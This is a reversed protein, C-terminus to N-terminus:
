RECVLAAPREIRYLVHMSLHPHTGPVQPHAFDRGTMRQMGIREMVAISRRNERVAFAYIEKLGFNQFAYDLAATAAETVYGQSWFRTAMRWGIEHAGEPLIGPLDVPAVGCFGMAEGTAKDSVAFMGLGSTAIQHRIRKRMADAEAHTRRYPFFEMVKPDRTIERFLDRDETKWNRLVLRATSIEM